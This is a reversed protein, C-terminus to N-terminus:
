WTRAWGVRNDFVAQRGSPLTYSQEQESLDLQVALQQIVDRLKIEQGKAQYALQLFPRMLQQYNPLV